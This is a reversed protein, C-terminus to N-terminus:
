LERDSNQWDTVPVIEPVDRRYYRTYWQQLVLACIVLCVFVLAIAPFLLGRDTGSSEAKNGFLSHISALCEGWLAEGFGMGHLRNAEAVKQRRAENLTEYNWGYYQVILSEFHARCMAVQGPSLSPFRKSLAEDEPSLQLSFSMQDVSQAGFALQGHNDFAKLKETMDIKYHALLWPVLPNDQPQIEVLHDLYAWLRLDCFRHQCVRPPTLEFFRVLTNTPVIFDFYEQADLEEAEENTALSVNRKLSPKQKWRNFCEPNNPDVFNEYKGEELSIKDSLLLKCPLSITCRQSVEQQSTMMALQRHLALFQYFRQPHCMDDNDVFTILANPNEILSESLLRRIHEMQSRKEVKDDMIYWSLGRPAKFAQAAIANSAAKRYEEPGSIGFFVSFSTLYQNAISKLTQRFTEIRRQSAVHCPVLVHLSSKGESSSSLTVNALEVKLGYGTEPLNVTYLGQQSDLFAIRGVSAEYQKLEEKLNSIIVEDGERPVFKSSLLM